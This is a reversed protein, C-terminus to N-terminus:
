DTFTLYKGCRAFRNVIAFHKSAKFIKAFYNM